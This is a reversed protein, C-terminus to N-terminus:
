VRSQVYGCVWHVTSVRSIDPDVASKLLCNSDKGWVFHTCQPNALCLGGCEAVSSKGIDSVIDHGPFDCGHAWKVQGSDGDKWEFDVRKVVWGCIAGDVSYSTPKDATKMYCYSGIGWTFHTCKPNALCISGCKESTSLEKTIDFGAFDCNNAWKM